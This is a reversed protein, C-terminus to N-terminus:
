NRVSKSLTTLRCREWSVACRPRRWSCAWVFVFKVLLDPRIKIKLIYCTLNDNDLLKFPMSSTAGPDPRLNTQSRRLQGQVRGRHPLVFCWRYNTHRQGEDSGDPQRDSSCERAPRPRVCRPRDLPHPLPDGGKFSM